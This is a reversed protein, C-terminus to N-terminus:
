GAVSAVTVAGGARARDTTVIAESAVAFHM